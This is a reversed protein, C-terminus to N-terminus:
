VVVELDLCDYLHFCVREKVGDDVKKEVWEQNVGRCVDEGCRVDNEVLLLLVRSCRIRVLDEVRPKM